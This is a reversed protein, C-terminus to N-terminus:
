DGLYDNTCFIAWCMYEALINKCMVFCNIHTDCIYIYKEDFRCTYSMLVWHYMYAYGVKAMMSESLPEDGTRRWAMIQVLATNNAILGKPVFKLLVWACMKMWSFANSFTAQFIDFMKDRGWHTLPRLNYSFSVLLDYTHWKDHMGAFVPCTNIWCWINVSTKCYKSMNETAYFMIRNNDDNLHDGDFCFYGDNLYYRGRIYM